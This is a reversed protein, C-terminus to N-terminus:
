RTTSPTLTSKVNEPLDPPAAIDRALPLASNLEPHGDDAAMPVDPLGEIRPENYVGLIPRLDGGEIEALVTQSDPMVFDTDGRIVSLIAESSGEHM